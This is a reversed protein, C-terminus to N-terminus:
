KGEDFSSQSSAFALLMAAAVDGLKVDVDWVRVAAGDDVMAGAVVALPWTGPKKLM